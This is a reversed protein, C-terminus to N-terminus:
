KKHANRAERDADAYAKRMISDHDARLEALTMSDDAAAARGRPTDDDDESEWEGEEQNKANTRRTKKDEAWRQSIESDYSDYLEQMRQHHSQGDAADARKDPVCTWVGKILHMRGRNGNIVCTDNEQHGIQEGTAADRRWANEVYSQYSDHAQQRRAQQQRADDASDPLRWGPQHARADFTPQRDATLRENNDAVQRQVGDMMHMVRLGRMDKLVKRGDIIEFDADDDVDVFGAQMRNM